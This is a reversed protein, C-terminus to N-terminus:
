PEFTLLPRARGLLGSAPIPGFYRSDYSGAFDSHLFLFGSPVQGGAFPTLASGAADGPQVDSNPLPLGDISVGVGIAIRQGETAVVTKILPSFGGPCLGRGLYGRERAMRFATTDPPCIFVLDGAAAPRELPEIRWLGLPSCRGDFSKLSRWVQLHIDQVLDQREAPDSEYAAALRALAGDLLEVALTYRQDVDEPVVPQAEGTKRPCIMTM